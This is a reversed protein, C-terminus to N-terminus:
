RRAIRSLAVAVARQQASSSKKPSARAFSALMENAAKQGAVLERMLEVLEDFKDSDVAEGEEELQRRASLVCARLEAQMAMAAPPIDHKLEAWGALSKLFARESALAGPNAPVPVVSVELLEQKRFHYGLWEGEPSLRQEWEIPLFGVSVTNLFKARVMAGVQAGFAHMEPPTFQIDRCELKDASQVLEGVSGVPPTDHSHAWLLVPNKEFADTVWGTQDITDGYRDPQPTSAIFSVPADDAAREISIFKVVGELEGSREKLRWDLTDLLIPKKARVM